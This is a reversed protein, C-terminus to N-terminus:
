AEQKPMKWAYWVILIAALLGWSENFVTTSDGQILIGISNSLKILAYLIGLVFSLWRNATSKLIMSLWAMICPIFFFITVQWRDQESFPMQLVSTLKAGM